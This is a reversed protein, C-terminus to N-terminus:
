EVDPADHFNGPNKIIEYMAGFGENMVYVIDKDESRAGFMTLNKEGVVQDVNDVIGEFSGLETGESVLVQDGAYYVLGIRERNDNISDHYDGISLLYPREESREFFSEETGHDFVNVTVNQANNVISNAAEYARDAAEDPTTPEGRNDFPKDFATSKEVAAGKYEGPIYGSEAETPGPKIGQEELRKRIQEVTPTPAAMRRYREKVDAIEIDAIAKFKRKGLLYGTLVGAGAGALAVSIHTIITQKNM